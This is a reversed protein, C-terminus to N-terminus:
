LHKPSIKQIKRNTTADIDTVLPNGKESKEIFSDILDINQLETQIQLIM